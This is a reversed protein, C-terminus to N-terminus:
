NPESLVEKITLEVLLQGVTKDGIKDFITRNPLNALQRMLDKRDKFTINLQKPKYGIEEPDLTAVVLGFVANKSITTTLANPEEPSLLQKSLTLKELAQQKAEKTHLAHVVVTDVVFLGNTIRFYKYEPNEVTIDYMTTNTVPEFSYASVPILALKENLLEAKETVLSSDIIFYYRDKDKERILGKPTKEVIQQKQKDYVVLSHDNSAIFQDTQLYYGRIQEKIYEGNQLKIKFGDLNPHISYEIIKQKQVDGQKNMCVTYLEFRDNPVFKIITKGKKSVIKQFKLINREPDFDLNHLFLELM